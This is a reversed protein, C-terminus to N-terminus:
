WRRRRWSAWGVGVWGDARGVQVGLFYLRCLQLADAAGLAQLWPVALVLRQAAHQLGLTSCALAAAPLSVAVVMAQSFLLWAGTTQFGAPPPPTPCWAVLLVGDAATSRRASPPM